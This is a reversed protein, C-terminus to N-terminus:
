GSRALALGQDPSTTPSAEAERVPPEPMKYFIHQGIKKIKNMSRRWRPKVYTAHYHTAYGIDGLWVKGDTVRTALTNSQAWMQKDRPVDAQGDCAFSFQCGKRQWQGQYVVGCITDPYHPTRVRNMVVQAVALQGRMPEGRAEFYIATALCRRQRAQYEDESEGQFVLGRSIRAPSGTELDHGGGAIAKRSRTFSYAASGSLSALLLPASSQSRIQPAAAAQVPAAPRNLSATKRRRNVEHEGRDISGTIEVDLPALAAMMRAPTKGLRTARQYALLADARPGKGSKRFLLNAQRPLALRPTEVDRREYASSQPSLLLEARLLLASPDATLYGLGFLPIPAIAGVLRRVRSVTRQGM